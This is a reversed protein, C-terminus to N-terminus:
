VTCVFVPVSTAVCVSMCVYVRVRMCVTVGERVCVYDIVSASWSVCLRMCVYLCVCM